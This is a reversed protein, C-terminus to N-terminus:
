FVGGVRLAAFAALGLVILATGKLLLRAKPDSAPQPRLGEAIMPTVSPFAALRQAGPLRHIMRVIPRLKHQHGQPVDIALVVPMGDRRDLSVTRYSLKAESLKSLVQSHDKAERGVTPISYLLRAYPYGGEQQVQPLGDDDLGPTHRLPTDKGKKLSRGSDFFREVAAIDGSMLDARTAGRRPLASTAIFSTRVRDAGAMEAELVKYDSDFSYGGDGLAKDFSLLVGILPKSHNAGSTKSVREQGGPGYKTHVEREPDLLEAARSLGERYTDTGDPLQQVDIGRARLGEVAAACHRLADNSAYVTGIRGRYKRQKEANWQFARTGTADFSDTFGAQDVEHIMDTPVALVYNSEAVYEGLVQQPFDMLASLTDTNFGGHEDYLPLVGVQAQGSVVAAATSEASARPSTWTKFAAGGATPASAPAAAANGFSRRTGSGYLSMSLDSSTIERGSLDQSAGPAAGNRAGGGNVARARTPNRFLDAAIQEAVWAGLGHREDMFAVFQNAM